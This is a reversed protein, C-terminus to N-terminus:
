NKLCNNRLTLFVLENALKATYYCGVCVEVNTDVGAYEGAYGLYPVFTEEFLATILGTKKDQRASFWWDLYKKMMNFTAKKFEKDDCGKVVHYAVDFLKPLSSAGETQDPFNEGYEKGPLVDNGWLCIRGDEKQSEIFNKISLNAFQRDIWKYGCLALSSDLQWWQKGYMGGPTFYPYNFGFDKADEQMCTELCHVAYDLHEQSVYPFSIKLLSNNQQM